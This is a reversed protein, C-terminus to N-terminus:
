SITPRFFREHMEQRFQNVHEATRQELDEVLEKQARESRIVYALVEDAACGAGPAGEGGGAQAARPPTHIAVDALGPPTATGGKAADGAGKGARRQKPAQQAAPSGIPKAVAARQPSEGGGGRKMGIGGKM